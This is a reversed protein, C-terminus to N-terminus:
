KTEKIFYLILLAPGVLWATYLFVRSYGLMLVLTGSFAGIGIDGFNALSTLISYQTAGIKPNTIDMFLACVVAYSAGGHLFGIIPYIIALIQWTNATTLLVSFIIVGTFLIYLTKKRSWRDAIIGFIIAGFVTAIPYLSTIIGTQAADLNLVNMM